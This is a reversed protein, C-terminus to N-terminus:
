QSALGKLSFVYMASGTPPHHIDTAVTTGIRRASGGGVGTPVAVFQEGDVSFSVLSGQPSVPLRTRWLVRGTRVDLARLYRDQDGIFVLDGATTLASSTFQARQEISWVEEMTEVDYAALKGLKGDTGPMEFLRSISAGHGGENLGFEVPRGAFDMCAQNLQIILLGAGPHYAMADRTHGGSTAPCVSLEDGIKANAIDDRYTVRGTTDDIDKFIDQYVTEKYDVFAGNERDLKWLIGHKGVTFLFKRGDLDVLVREFVEDLDLSEGPVHQFYWALAGDDPRLAVTSNTYLAADATTLGRSAALFPKAQATGWYLLDLGPDYSGTMWPDGGARQYDELNGWTNGGPQDARATTEFKWALEGTMADLAGIFCREQTFRQCGSQGHIVNGNVVIPAGTIMRGLSNDAVTVEWVIRGTRADLAVVRADHVAVIVLDGYLAVSRTATQAAIPAGGIQQEWILEGNRADFAQVIHGVNALFLTGDHVIPTPQNRGGENMVWGWTLKLDGVNEHTIEELPSYGTSQYDRRFMLWDNPSPDVLMQDTVATYRPVEGMVAHRRILRQDEPAAATPAPSAVAAVQATMASEISSVTGTTLADAGPTAGNEQLLYAALDLHAQDGLSGPAGPPMRTAIFEVLEPISRDRWGSLFTMGLLPPAEGIGQLTGGHCFACASEYATRGRSAQEITHVPGSAPQQAAAVALATSGVVAASIVRLPSGIKFVM